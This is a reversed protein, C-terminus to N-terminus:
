ACDPLDPHQIIASQSVLSERLVYVLFLAFSFMNSNSFQARKNRLCPAQNCMMRLDFPGHLIHNCLFFQENNVTM